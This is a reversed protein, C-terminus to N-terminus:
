KRFFSEVGDWFGDGNTDRKNPNTIKNPCNAEVAYGACTEVTDPLGDQDIDKTMNVLRAELQDPAIKTRNVAAGDEPSFYLIKSNGQADRVFYIIGRIYAATTTGFDQRKFDTSLIIQKSDSWINVFDKENMDKGFFYASDMLANCDETKTADACTPSLQYSLSKIGDLNHTKAFALYNQFIKWSAQSLNSEVGPKNSTNTTTAVTTTATPIEEAPTPAKAKNVKLGFVLASVILIAGVAILIKNKM